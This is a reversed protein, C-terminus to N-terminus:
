DAAKALQTLRANIVDVIRRFARRTEIPFVPIDGCDVYLVRKNHGSAEVIPALAYARCTFPSAGRAADAFSQVVTFNRFLPSDPDSLSIEDQRYGGKEWIEAPCPRRPGGSIDILAMRLYFDTKALQEIVEKILQAADTAERCLSSVLALTGDAKASFDLKRRRSEHERPPPEPPASHPRSAAMARPQAAEILAAEIAAIHSAQQLDPPQLQPAPQDPEPATEPAAADPLPASPVVAPAASDAELIQAPDQDYAEDVSGGSFYREIKAHLAAYRDDDLALMRISSKPPIKKGPSLSEWRGSEFAEVMEAASFVAARTLVMERSLGESGPELVSM